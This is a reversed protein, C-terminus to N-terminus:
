SPVWCTSHSAGCFYPSLHPCLCLHTAKLFIESTWNAKSTTSQIHTPTILPLSLFSCIFYPSNATSHSGPFPSPKSEGATVMICSHPWCTKAFVVHAKIGTHPTKWQLLHTPFVVLVLAHAHTDELTQRKLVPWTKTKYYRLQQSRVPQALVTPPPLFMPGLSCLVLFLFFLVCCSPFYVGYIFFVVRSALLDVMGVM